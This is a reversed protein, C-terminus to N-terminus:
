YGERPDVARLLSAGDCYRRFNELFLEVIREVTYPLTMFGAIHPTIMLRPCDWLPDDPALPEHEFVDLAAGNLHGSKLVEMLAAQDLATGRGVNVLFADGPLLRLRRADMIHRTQPTGPLSMVLLDTEPLVDDLRSIPVVADFLGGPAAGSRNVAAISKPGFARFRVAVERGIDGAGLLTVRSGRISRVALGRKWEHRAICANYELQRRMLTLTLMTVHEALTVGYAGSSSTLRVDGRAAVPALWADVGATTACAWRLSPAADLIAPSRGFYIEADSLAGDTFAAEFDRSAAEAAIAGRQAATLAPIDVLLRRNM